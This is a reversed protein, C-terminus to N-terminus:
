GASLLKAVVAKIHARHQATIPGLVGRRDKPLHAGPDGDKMFIYHDFVDRWVARQADPLERITLLALMMSEYPSISDTPGGNWWYNILVNFNSLSRVHHWWYYPVYIADGPELEAVEASALADAFRPFREFDPHDLDVMSVPRGAPSYELPGIYLNKLQEPPFLTFRRRGAVVCALNSAMDSHTTATVSNGIWIRPTIAPELVPNGHSAHFQPLHIQVPASQVYLAPAHADAQSSLLRELFASLTSKTKQFNFGRLDDSYFFRGKYDAPAALSEIPRRRGDAESLDRANRTLAPGGAGFAL